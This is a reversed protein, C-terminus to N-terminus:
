THMESKEKLASINYEPGFMTLSSTPLKSTHKIATERPGGTLKNEVSINLVSRVPIMRGTKATAIITNFLQLPFHM